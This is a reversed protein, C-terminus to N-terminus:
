PAFDPNQGTSKKAFFHYVAVGLVSCIAMLSVLPLSTGDHWLSMSVGAIVGMSFQLTGMLASATGAQDGQDALAIATTNPNVMGYCSMYLFFSAILLWLPSYGFLALVLTIASICAPAWLIKHLIAAPTIRRLLRGNIQSFLVLGIANAGFVFGYHEPKIGYLEILVFPSGIIYSFMGAQMLAGTMVHAVFARHHLLAWYQRLVRSLRLPPAYEINITEELTKHTFYFCVAGYLMLVIFIMRWEAVMLIMSGILPALIPALGFVLMILSFARASGQPGMKDRIYARTIVMGACGGLGQFFRVVILVEIQTVIACALSSVTYLAIGFYLPRKRGYSDSIPGYLLQGCALGVLVSALTLQVMGSDTHLDRAINTLSPLYMDISLAGMAMLGALLVLWGPFRKEQVSIHQKQM